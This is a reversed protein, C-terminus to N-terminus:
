RRIRLNRPAGLDSVQVPFGASNPVNDASFIYLYNTGHPIAGQNVTITITNDSWEIPIQPEVIRCDTYHPADGLIVRSFTNDVYVDDFYRCANNNLDDQGNGCLRQRWFGGLTAGGFPERTLEQNFTCDGEVDLDTNLLDVNDIRTVYLERGRTTDLLHEERVWYLAPNKVTTDFTIVPYGYEGPDGDTDWIWDGCVDRDLIETQHPGSMWEDKCGPSRRRGLYGGTCGNINDYCFPVSYMLFPPNTEWNFYKYNEEGTPWLPDLKLYFSVFWVPHRSGDSVTLGVNQGVEGGLCEGQEDHCGILYQTSRPHPGAVGRHPIVRYQMNSYGGNRTVNKPWADRYHKLAGPLTSVVWTMEGWHLVSMNNAPASDGDDWWLPAAPTKAGFNAGNITVVAHHSLVGSVENISPQALVVGQIITLATLFSSVRQIPTM